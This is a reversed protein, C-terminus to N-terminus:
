PRPSVQRMKTAFERKAAELQKAMAGVKAEAEQKLEAQLSTLYPLTLYPLTLEEQKSRRRALALAM